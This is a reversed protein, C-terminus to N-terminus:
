VFLMEREHEKRKTKKCSLILKEVKNMQLVDRRRAGEQRKEMVEKVHKMKEVLRARDPENLLRCQIM